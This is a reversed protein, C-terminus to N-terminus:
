VVLDLARQQAPDKEEGTTKTTTRTTGGAIYYRGCEPCTAGQLTVSQSIVQKGESKAKAQERTVHEQEHSAVVAGSVAPNIHGPAKFSVGADDSGDQYTRNKCTQCEQNFKDNMVNALAKEQAIQANAGLPAAQATNANQLSVSNQPAKQASVAASRNFSIPSLSPLAGDISM